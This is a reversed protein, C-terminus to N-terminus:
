EDGLSHDILRAAIRGFDSETVIGVLQENRVVPLAGVGHHRMLHIAERTPTEPTISIPDRIMIDKVPRDTTEGIAKQAALFRLTMRHNVLGVLRHQKDEVLVHRIRRWDMIVAVFDILEDEHVTFLDTSMYHEVRKSPVRSLAEDIMAAVNWEHVPRGSLQNKLMYYVLSDLREARTTGEDRMNALSELQWQSGTQRSLVRENIIGLYREIDGEDIGSAELGQRAIPLLEATILKGASWRHGDLWRIESALGQRAVTVFNNKAADFPILPRIDDHRDALGVVLGFWFAANAVEDVVSPGAPLIRNEIRLHPQGNTIGYCARNWRYVTGNHLRLASLAPIRGEKLSEFSDEFDSSIIVRFRAIDEKYIEAVSERVWETGFHVRPSMDRLYLNSSRTDVAQQFLAIRTERWLRKGFLIPSNTASALVPAAVLQAINYYHAFEDPAVQFHTQFSTNCGEVMINPHQFFLEDVGRIQYQAMGGMLEMIADNLAFYRPQPAMNDIRLDYDHITPLIGAMVVVSGVKEALNRVNTLMEGIQNELRSLCDGGFELPDLNFELNFRTLESVLRPDKNIQLIEEALPAPQWREDVLFLEQEAGIRRTDTEFLGESLMHELARVDNIMQRTFRRMSTPDQLKQVDQEGMKSAHQRAPHRPLRLYSVAPNRCIGSPGSKM